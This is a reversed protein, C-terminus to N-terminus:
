GPVEATLTLGANPATDIRLSGGLLQVRERLGILGFGSDTKHAGQGDDQVILQVSNPDRYDITLTVRSAAAHKRANTLGEQAARYLAQEAQPGLVRPVGVVSFTTGLGTAKAEDALTALVRPM